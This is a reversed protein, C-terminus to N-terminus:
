QARSDAGGKASVRRARWWLSIVYGALIAGAVAYAAHYWGANDPTM